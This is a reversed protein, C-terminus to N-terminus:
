APLVNHKLWWGALDRMVGTLQEPDAPKVVYSNAGLAYASAIDSALTSSTLVIVPLCRHESEQRLWRLVDMGTICPLKWDLLMLSPLPFQDRNAFKDSGKLYDIAVQGSDAVAVPNAIGAKQIARKLFFVDNEEDEVLLLPRYKM